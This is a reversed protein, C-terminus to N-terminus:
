RGCTRTAEWSQVEEEGTQQPIPIQAIPLKLERWIDILQNLKLTVIMKLFIKENGSRVLFCLDVM